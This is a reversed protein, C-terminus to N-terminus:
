KKKRRKKRNKRDEYRNLEGIKKDQDKEWSEALAKKFEQDIITNLLQKGAELIEKYFVNFKRYEFEVNPNLQIYGLIALCTSCVKGMLTGDKAKIDVFAEDKSIKRRCFNCRPM